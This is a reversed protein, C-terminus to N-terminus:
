ARAGNQSKGDRGRRVMLAWEDRNDAPATTTAAQCHWASGGHRIVDGVAYTTNPQYEGRYRPFPLVVPFAKRQDGRAFALTVTRDGDYEVALDDFGVGPAGPEGRDGPAGPPGPVLAREAVSSVQLRLEALEAVLPATTAKITTVILAALADLEEARM